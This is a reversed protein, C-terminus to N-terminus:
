TLMRGELCDRSEKRGRQKEQKVCMTGESGRYKM